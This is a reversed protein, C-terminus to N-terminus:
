GHTTYDFEIYDIMREVGVEWSFGEERVHAGYEEFRSPEYHVLVEIGDPHDFTRAHLEMAVGDVEGAPTRLNTVEGEYAYSYLDGDEWRQERLSREWEEHTCQVVISPADPKPVTFYENGLERFLQRFRKYPLKGKPFQGTRRYHEAALVLGIGLPILLETHSSLFRILSNM